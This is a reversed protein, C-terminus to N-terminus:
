PYEKILEMINESVLMPQKVGDIQVLASSFGEESEVVITGTKIEGVLKIKVRKGYKFKTPPKNKM